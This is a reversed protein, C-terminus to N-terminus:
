ALTEEMVEGGGHGGDWDAGFAALAFDGPKGGNAGIVILKEAYRIAADAAAVLM